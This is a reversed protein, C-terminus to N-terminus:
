IEGAKTADALYLMQANLREVVENYTTLLAEVESINSQCTVLQKAHTTNLTRLKELKDAVDVIPEFTLYKELQQVEELLDVFELLQDRCEIVFGARSKLQPLTQQRLDLM